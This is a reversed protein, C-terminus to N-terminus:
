PRRGVKGWLAGQQHASGWCLLASNQSSAASCLTLSSGLKERRGVPDAALLPPSFIALEISKITVQTLEFGHPFLCRFLVNLGFNVTESNCLM